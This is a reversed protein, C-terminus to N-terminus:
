SRGSPVGCADEVTAAVGGRYGRIRDSVDTAVQDVTVTWVLFSDDVVIWNM